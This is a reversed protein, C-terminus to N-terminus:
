HTGLVVILANGKKQAWSVIRCVDTFIRLWLFVASGGTWRDCSTTAPGILSRDTSTDLRASLFITFFRRDGASRASFVTSIADNWDGTPRTWEHMRWGRSAPM